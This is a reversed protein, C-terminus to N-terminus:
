LHAQKRPCLKLCRLIAFCVCWYWFFVRQLSYHIFHVCVQSLSSFSHPKQTILYQSSFNSYSPSQISHWSPCLTSDHLSNLSSVSSTRTHFHVDLNKIKNEATGFVFVTKDTRIYGSLCKSTYKNFNIIFIYYVKAGSYGIRNMRGSRIAGGAASIKQTHRISAPNATRVCSMLRGTTLSFDLCVLNITVIM